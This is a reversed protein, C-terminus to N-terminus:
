EALLPAADGNPSEYFLGQYILVSVRIRAEAGQHFPDLSPPEVLSGMTLTGGRKADAAAPGYLDAARALRPAFALGLLALAARRGIFAEMGQEGQKEKSM